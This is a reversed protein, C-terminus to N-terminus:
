RVRFRFPLRARSSLAKGNKMAPYFRASRACRLAERDLSSNGSSRVIRASSVRGSSSVSVEVTCTGQIGAAKAQAPYRISPRSRLRVSRTKGTVPKPSSKKKRRSSGPPAKSRKSTKAPQHPEPPQDTKKVTQSARKWRAPTKDPAVPEPPPPNSITFDPGEAVTVFDMPPGDILHPHISRLAPPAQQNQVPLRDPQRLPVETQVPPSVPSEEEEIDIERNIDPESNPIPALKVAFQMGAPKTQEQSLDLWLFASMLAGVASAHFIGSGILSLFFSPPEPCPM